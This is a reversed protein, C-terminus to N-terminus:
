LSFHLITFDYVPGDGTRVVIGTVDPTLLMGQLLEANSSRLLVKPRLGCDCFPLLLTAIRKETDSIDTGVVAQANRAAM